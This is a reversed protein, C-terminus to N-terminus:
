AVKVQKLTDILAVELEAWSRAETSCVPSDWNCGSVLLVRFCGSECFEPYWGIDIIQEFPFSAQFLDEKLDEIGLLVDMSQDLNSLDDFVVAGGLKTVEQLDM